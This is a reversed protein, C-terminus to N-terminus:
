RARPPPTSPLAAAQLFDSTTFVIAISLLSSLGKCLITKIQKSNQNLIKM